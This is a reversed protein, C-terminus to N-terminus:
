RGSEVAEAQGCLLLLVAEGTAPLGLGTGKAPAAARLADKVAAWVSLGLVFPPEGVAKGAYV